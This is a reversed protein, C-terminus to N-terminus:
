AIASRVAVTDSEGAPASGAKKARENQVIKHWSARLTQLHQVVEDCIRPDNRFDVELMRRLLFAYIMQLRKAVDGGKEHDLIDLLYSVVEMARKNSNHRAQIDGAAIAEKAMNCFRIAGDYLMVVQEAASANVIQQQQYQKALNPAYTM